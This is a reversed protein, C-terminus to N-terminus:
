YNKLYWDITKKIGNEIKIKPKWNFKKKVLNNSLSINTKINPKSKNFIIQINKNSAKIIKKVLDKISISKGYSVNVLEFFSKQKKIAIDIFNVLDDVHLFDRRENGHGWVEINKKAKMVKTLTAGFVHSKELDFKDHPGYINSHRIVLYKTKKFRSYFECSKEIFIKMWAAGFYSPYPDKNLNLSNEKIPTKSSQYMISCSLFVFIKNSNEYSSRLVYSNIVANDTVHIYPKNVIDKSGSTTAAAQIVIDKDKLVKDVDSKNTLDAKLFKINKNKWPKRLNYVAYVQYNKKKSYYEALNRGIFGTAGLIVIKITM